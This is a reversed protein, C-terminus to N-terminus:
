TLDFNVEVTIRVPVPVGDKKAPEFRWTEVAKMVQEDLGMGLPVKVEMKQPKGDVGVVLSLISTGRTNLRSAYRSYKPDPTSIPKPPSVGEKVRFIGPEATPEEKAPDTGVPMRAFRQWPEPLLRAILRNSPILVEHWDGKLVEAEDKEIRSIHIQTQDNVVRKPILTKKKKNYQLGVRPGRLVVESPNVDIQQVEILGLTWPGPTVAALPRGATDFRLLINEPFDRIYFIRGKYRSELAQKIEASSTQAFAGLSAWLISLLVCVIKM